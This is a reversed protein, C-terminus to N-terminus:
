KGTYMILILFQSIILNYFKMLLKLPMYKPKYIYNKKLKIFMSIKMTLKQSVVYTLM